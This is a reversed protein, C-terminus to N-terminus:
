VTVLPHPVATAVLLTVTLLTGAAPVIMPAGLTQTPESAGNVLEAVSPTHLEDDAPMAVILAEPTTVAIVAPVAVMDYVTVFLQPTALVDFVTVTFATGFAPVIVPAAVIHAAVVRENDFVTAPPAHVDAAGDTAVTFAEPTTVPTAPPTAVIDYVTLLLEHEVLATVAM